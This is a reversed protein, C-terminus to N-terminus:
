TPSSKAAHRAQRRLVDSGQSLVYNRRDAQGVRRVESAMGPSGGAPRTRRAMRALCRTDMVLFANLDPSEFGQLSQCSQKGQIPDFRADNDAIQGANFFQCLGRPSCHYKFWFRANGALAPYVQRLWAKDPSRQYISWAAWSMIPVQGEGARHSDCITGPLSGRPGANETFCLIAERALQPDFEGLGLTTFSTDWFFALGQKTVYPVRKDGTYGGEGRLCLGDLAAVAHAYM